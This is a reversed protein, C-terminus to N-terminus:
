AEGGNAAEYACLMWGLSAGACFLTYLGFFFIILSM